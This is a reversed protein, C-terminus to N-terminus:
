SLKCSAFRLVVQLIINTYLGAVLDDLMIGRSGKLHQLRRAPYPKLIDLARFILFALLAIKIDYPIFLLSLLMGGVEDIVICRADKKNLLGEAKGSLLFGLLIIGATFFIYLFSNEKILFYLGLGALSGFTGPILPLYGIYFFTSITLTLFKASKNLSKM